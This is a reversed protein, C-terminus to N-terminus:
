GLPLGAQRAFASSPRESDKFTGSQFNTDAAVRNRLGRRRLLNRGGRPSNNNEVMEANFHLDFPCKSTASTSRLKLNFTEDSGLYSAGLSSM